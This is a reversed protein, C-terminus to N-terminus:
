TAEWVRDRIQPWDTRLIDSVVMKSALIARHRKPEPQALHALIERELWDSPFGAWDGAVSLLNTYLVPAVEDTLIRRAEDESMAAARLTRAAAEYFLSHDTDLFLESLVRWVPRRRELDAETLLTNM